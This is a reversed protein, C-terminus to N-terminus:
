IIKNDERKITWKFFVSLVHKNSSLNHQLNKKIIENKNWSNSNLESVCNVGFNFHRTQSTM